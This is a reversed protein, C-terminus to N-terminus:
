DDYRHHNRKTHRRYTKDEKCEDTESKVIGHVGRTTEDGAASGGRFHAIDDRRHVRRGDDGDRVGGLTHRHRGAPVYLDQAAEEPTSGEGEFAACYNWPFRSDVMACGSWSVPAADTAAMTSKTPATATKGTAPATLVHLMARDSAAM